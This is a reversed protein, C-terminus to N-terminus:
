GTPPTTQYPQFGAGAIANAGQATQPPIGTVGPVSGSGSGIAQLLGAAQSGPPLAGAIVSQLAGPSGSGLLYETAAKNFMETMAQYASTQGSMGQMLQQFPIANATANFGATNMQNGLQNTMAAIPGLAAKMQPTVGPANLAQQVNQQGQNLLGQNAQAMMQMQPAMYQQFFMGLGMTM